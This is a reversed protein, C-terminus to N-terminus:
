APTLQLNRLKVYKVDSTITLYGTAGTSVMEIDIIDDGPECRTTQCLYYSGGWGRDNVVTYSYDGTQIDTGVRLLGNTANASGAGILSAAVAGGLLATTILKKM